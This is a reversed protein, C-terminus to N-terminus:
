YWQKANELIVRKSFIEMIKEIVPFVNTFLKNEQYCKVFNQLEQIEVLSLYNIYKKTIIKIFGKTEQNFFEAEGINHYDLINEYICICVLMRIINKNVVYNSCNAFFSKRIDKFAIQASILLSQKVKDEPIKKVLEKYINNGILCHANSYAFFMFIKYSTIYILDDRSIIERLYRLQCENRIGVEDLIKKIVLYDNKKPTDLILELDIDRESDKKIKYYQSSGHVLLCIIRSSILSNKFAKKIRIFKDQNLKIDKKLKMYNNLIM